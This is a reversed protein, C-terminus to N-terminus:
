YRDKSFRDSEYTEKLLNLCRDRDDKYRFEAILKGEYYIEYEM